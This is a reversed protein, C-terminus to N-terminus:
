GGINVRTSVDPTRNYLSLDKALVNYGKRESEERYYTRLKFAIVLTITLRLAITGITVPLLYPKVQLLGESIVLLDQVAKGITNIAFLFIVFRVFDPINKSGYDSAVLIAGSLGAVIGTTALLMYLLQDTM